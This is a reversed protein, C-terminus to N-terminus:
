RSGCYSNDGTRRTIEVATIPVVGPDAPHGDVIIMIVIEDGGPLARCAVMPLSADFEHLYEFERLVGFQAGLMRASTPAHLTVNAAVSTASSRGIDIRTLAPDRPEVEFRGREVETVVRGVADAVERPSGKTALAAVVAELAALTARQEADISPPTAPPPASSSPGVSRAEASTVVREAPAPAATATVAPSTTRPSLSSSCGVVGILWARQVMRQAASM